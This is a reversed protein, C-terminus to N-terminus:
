RKMYADDLNLLTSAVSTLAATTIRDLSSDLKYEGIELLENVANKDQTFREKEKQYLDKLIQIEKEGPFRSTALRFAYSLQEDLTTGGEKQIRKALVKAAEVFQPDNLLVLAQLPTNTIERKVICVDRNPADFTTMSPPPSTRRIFTYMSRRYLKDGEDAKYHLLKFSFNGLDFWLDDPQYPKVSEGGIKKVLLGSTALANDRIMEASVRYSPGRSLFDNGPDREKKEKSTSSSQKYTSSLVIKKCLAKLDWDSKQFDLALWDLLQPLAPLSGQSGFDQPTKVLGNGFFLQWYRNVTVRATLPNEKSFLWQALGLRNKPLNDPFSLIKKPTGAKVEYTPSDYQGRNLVFASRPQDMEQMVMVESITDVLALKQDRLIKLDKLIQKYKPSQRALHNKEMVESTVVKAISAVEFYSLEKKFINVEDIKGKFIGNEGTFQRGSKGFKIPRNELVHSGVEVPLINKYLNNYPFILDEKKGNIFINIGKAQGSGDYSFAVHNWTNVPIETNAATAHIYNHPLSSILRVNLKNQGDLYFDWGRWFNNKNGATGMFVQTKSSYKKSTNIWLTVSYPETMEFVGVDKILFEDYEDDFQLVKGGRDDILEMKDSVLGTKKNDVYAGNYEWKFFTKDKTPKLTNIAFSADPTSLKLNTIFNANAEVQDLTAILAEEKETIQKQIAAIKKDTEKNTMLLMPGYNGDDGTMGLEKVNNFFATMQFYEEQSIPDFKHDHCRACEMTLGMMATATTNTRDFVYELRFEEDIAGGEATMAHNRHFATALIQEKSPNPLLDGALQWTVFQDYPMNKNFADIVWDRWPWMMRWGDAHMGHSDAYRALDLWELTMREGYAKSQLLRDVVKEYANDSQDSLFNDIESITPPLGTLDRTVRRLLREKDAEVEPQLHEAQLNKYVFYDIPNIITWDTDIPQIEQEEPPIFAWHNKWVAGQDIWKAIIAIEKPTLTLNSEPPPMQMEPDDSIIRQLAKSKNPKGSVFAFGNGSKLATFAGAKYHLELDAKRTNKDPGHCKYCRDSLIPRVHLNFDIQDPLSEYVIKVEDPLNNSCGLALLGIVLLWISNKNV